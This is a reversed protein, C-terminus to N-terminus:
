AGTARATTRNFPAPGSTLTPKGHLFDAVLLCSVNNTQDCEAQTKITECAPPGQSHAKLGAYERAHVAVLVALVLVAACRM